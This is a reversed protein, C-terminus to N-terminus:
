VIIPSLKPLPLSLCSPAASPLLLMFYPFNSAIEKGPFCHIFFLKFCPLLSPLPSACLWIFLLLLLHAPCVTCQVLCGTYCTFCEVRHCKRNRQGLQHDQLEQNRECVHFPRDPNWDATKNSQSLAFPLWKLSNREQEHCFSTSTCM